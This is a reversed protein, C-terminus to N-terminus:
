IKSVTKYNYSYDSNADSAGVATTKGPIHNFAIWHDGDMPRQIRTVPTSIVIIENLANITSLGLDVLQTTQTQFPDVVLNM